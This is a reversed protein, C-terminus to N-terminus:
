FRLDAAIIAYGDLEQAPVFYVEGGAALTARVARETSPNSTEDDSVVLYRVRGNLAMELVEDFGGAYTNNGKAVDLNQTVLKNQARFHQEVQPWIKNSLEAESMFDYSGEIV